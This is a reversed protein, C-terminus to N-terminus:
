RAIAVAISTKGSGPPGYFLLSGFRNQAVLRALLSGQGLIHEQGVVESLRRPRMRVALPLGAGGSAAEDPALPEPESFLESQDATDMASEALRWDGGM